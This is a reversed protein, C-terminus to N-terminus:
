EPSEEVENVDWDDGVELSNERGYGACQACIGPVGDNLAKEEAEEKSDAEVYLTASANSTLHVAYRTM